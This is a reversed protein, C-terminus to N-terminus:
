LLGKEMWLRRTAVRRPLNMGLRVVSAGGEPTLGLILGSEMDLAFHESWAQTRPNFLPATQGSDPDQGVLATYKHANCPACCLALNALDDSGARCKPQIHEVHFQYGTVQRPARCYECTGRPESSSKTADLPRAM